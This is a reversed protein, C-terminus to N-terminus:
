ALHCDAMPEFWVEMPTFTLRPIYNGNGWMSRRFCRNAIEVGGYKFGTERMRKRTMTNGVAFVWRTARLDVVSEEVLEVDGSQDFQKLVSLGKEITAEQQM